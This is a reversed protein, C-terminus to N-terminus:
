AESVDPNWLALANIAFQAANTCALTRHQKVEEVQGDEAFDCIGKVIIGAWDKRLSLLAVGEMEGGILSGFQGCWRFLQDRYATCEVKASGSLLVGFQHKFGDKDVSRATAYARFIRLLDEKCPVASKDKYTYEFAGEVPRVVRDDYPFLAESVLVTGPVQQTRSLGFAMGISILGTARTKEFYFHASSIAGSPGLAGMTTKIAVVHSTGLTGLDYFDGHISSQRKWPLGRAKVASKLAKEESSTVFTLLYDCTPPDVPSPM